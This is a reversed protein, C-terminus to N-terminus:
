VFIKGSFDRWRFLSKEAFFERWQVFRSCACVCSCIRLKRRLSNQKDFSVFCRLVTRTVDFEEAVFIVFEEVRIFFYGIVSVILAGGISSECLFALRSFVAFFLLCDDDVDVWGIFDTIILFFWNSCSSFVLPVRVILYNRVRYNLLFRFNIELLGFVCFVSFHIAQLNWFRLFNKITNVLFAAAVSRFCFWYNCFIFVLGCQVRFCFFCRDRVCWCFLGSHKLFVALLESNLFIMSFFFSDLFLWRKRCIFILHWCIVCM